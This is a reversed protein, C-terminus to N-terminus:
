VLRSIEEIGLSENSNIRSRTAFRFFVRDEFYISLDHVASQYFPYESLQDSTYTLVKGVWTKKAM